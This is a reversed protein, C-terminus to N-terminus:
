KFMKFFKLSLLIIGYKRDLARRKIMEHTENTKIYNLLMIRPEEIGRKEEM